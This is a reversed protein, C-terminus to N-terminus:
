AARQGSNAAAEQEAIWSLLTSARACIQGGVNFTPLRNANRLYRVQRASLGLFDAIAPSGYLLDRGAPAPSPVEM